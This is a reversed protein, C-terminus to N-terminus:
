TPCTTRSWHTGSASEALDGGAAHLAALVTLVAVTGATWSTVLKAERTKASGGAQQGPVRCHRGPVPLSRCNCPVTGLITASLRPRRLASQVFVTPDNLSYQILEYWCRAIRRLSGIWRCNSVVRKDVLYTLSDLDRVMASSSNCTASAHCMRALAGISSATFVGNVHPLWAVVRQSLSRTRCRPPPRLLRPQLTLIQQFGSPAGRSQAM